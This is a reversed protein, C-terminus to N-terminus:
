QRPEGSAPKLLGLREARQGLSEGSIRCAPGIVM